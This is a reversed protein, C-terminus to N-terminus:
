HFLEISYHVTSFVDFKYTPNLNINTHIQNVYKNIQDTSIQTTDFIILRDDIYRTYLIINKTDLLQKIHINELHQLFIEAIISSIPSGMSVGKEPQYIKNQFMFYSQSRVAEMLTIIQQTVHANDNKLFVSKTITLTEKIPINIYLDKIDYTILQHDKSLNLKVLSAALSTSNRVNYQNNLTIHKNLLKVLRKAIKYTPAKVNNIVPRIPIGTKHLKLQAKLTPPSPKQQILYKIKKKDIILNRQQLTRHILQQYKTTPYKQILHLSNDM